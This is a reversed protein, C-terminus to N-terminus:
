VECVLNHTYIIIKPTPLFISEDICQLEKGGWNLISEHGQGNPAEQAVGQNSERHVSAPRVGGFLLCFTNM